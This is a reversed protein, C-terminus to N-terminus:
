EQFPAVNVEGRTLLQPPPGNDPGRLRNKCRWASSSQRPCSSEVPGVMSMPRLSSRGGKGGGEGHSWSGFLRASVPLAPRIHRVNPVRSWLVRACFPLKSGIQGPLPRPLSLPPPAIAAVHDTAIVRSRKVAQLLLPTTVSYPVHSAATVRAPPPPLRSFTSDLVTGHCGPGGLDWNGM